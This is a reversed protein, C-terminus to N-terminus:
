SCCSAKWCSSANRSASRTKWADKWSDPPWCLGLMYSLAPLLFPIIQWFRGSALVHGSYIINGTQAFAFVGGRALFSYSASFGGAATVLILLPWSDAMLGLSLTRKENQMDQMTSCTSCTTM